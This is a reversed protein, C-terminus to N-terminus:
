LCSSSASYSLKVSPRDLSKDFMQQNSVGKREGGKHNIVAHNARRDYHHPEVAEDPALALVVEALWAGRGDGLQGQGRSGRGVAVAVAVALVREAAAVMDGVAGLCRRRHGLANVSAPDLEM